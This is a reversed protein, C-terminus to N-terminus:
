KNQSQKFISWKGGKDERVSWIPMALTEDLSELVDDADPVQEFLDQLEAQDENKLNANAPKM